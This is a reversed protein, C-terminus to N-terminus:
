HCWVFYYSLLKFEASNKNSEWVILNEQLLSIIRENYLLGRAYTSMEFQKFLFSKFAGCQLM